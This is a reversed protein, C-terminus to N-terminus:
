VLVDSCYHIFEHSNLLHLVKALQEETLKHKSHADYYDRAEKETEFTADKTNQIERSHNFHKANDGCLVYAETETLFFFFL